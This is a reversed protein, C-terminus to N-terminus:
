SASPCNATPPELAARRVCIRATSKRRRRFKEATTPGPVDARFPEKRKLMAFMIKVLKHAGAGAGQGKGRRRTVRRATKAAAGRPLRRAHRWFAEMLLWRVLTNSDRKLAGYRLTEGSQRTTPCLGVYSSLKEASSFREIPCLFAALAVATLEGMMPITSLLQAEPLRLWEEHIQKDLERSTDELFRMVDLGRDVEPLGLSRLAERKRRRGLVGDDYQIGHRLLTAYTRNRVALARRKYYVREMVLARLARTEPPPASATPLANVRLLTALAESDVEDTKLSAEAILRTRLPNSLVVSASVTTAAEFLPAWYSGAELAVHKRGPIGRLFETLEEPSPGFRRQSLRVGAADLATAVVSKRAVDVGVFVEAVAESEM